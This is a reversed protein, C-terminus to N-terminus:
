LNARRVLGVPQAQFDVGLLAGSGRRRAGTLLGPAVIREPVPLLGVFALGLVVLM